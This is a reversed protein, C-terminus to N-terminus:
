GVVVATAAFEGTAAIGTDGVAVITVVDGPSTASLDLTATYPVPTTWDTATIEFDLVEPPDAPILARVVVTGEFGRGLGDVTLDGATVEDGFEPVDITVGESTASLVFWGDDAGLQRMFLIVGTPRTTAPDDDDLPSLVEIEGSRGDGQMFEGILPEVGFVQEIFDSAAEEPTDFVVEAAPWVAVVPEVVPVTTPPTTTPVVTTPAVTTPAATTPPATTAPMTTEPVTTPATTPTTEPTTTPATTPTTTIATTSTPTSVADDGCAAALSMVVSGGILTRLVTHFRTRSM